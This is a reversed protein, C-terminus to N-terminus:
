SIVSMGFTAVGSLMLYEASSRYCYSFCYYSGGIVIVITVNITNTSIMHAM